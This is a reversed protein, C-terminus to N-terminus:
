FIKWTNGARAPILRMEWADFEEIGRTGRALPSSGSVAGAWSSTPRHEGRSRPHAARVSLYRLAQSTNGARAPILRGDSGPAVHCNRTGRALPSSGRERRFRRARRTHEGRSRPHAADLYRSQSEPNTNGARAPILRPPLNMLARSEHTGRALPSSGRGCGMMRHSLVHEGRSRPHATMM